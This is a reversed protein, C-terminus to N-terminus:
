HQAAVYPNFSNYNRKVFIYVSKNREFLILAEITNSLSLRLCVTVSTSSSPSDYQGMVEKDAARHYATGAPRGVM